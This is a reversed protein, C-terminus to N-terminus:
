AQHLLLDPATTDHSQSSRETYHYIKHQQIM